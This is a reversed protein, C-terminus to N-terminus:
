QNIIQELRVDNFDDSIGTSKGPHSSLIFAAVALVFTAALLIAIIRRAKQVTLNKPKKSPKNRELRSFPRGTM